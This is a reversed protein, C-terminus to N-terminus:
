RGLVSYLQSGNLLVSVVEKPQEPISSKAFIKVCQYCSILSCYYLQQGASCVCLYLLYFIVFQKSENLEWLYCVSVESQTNTSAGAKLLVVVVERHGNQSARMLATGGNQLSTPTTFYLTFLQVSLRSSQVFSCHCQQWSVESQIDVCARRLLAVVVEKYGLQSAILLPTVGDKLFFPTFYLISFQNVYNSLSLYSQLLVTTGKYCVCLSFIALVYLANVEKLSRHLYHWMHVTPSFFSSFWAFVDVKM